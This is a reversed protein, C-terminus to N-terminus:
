NNVERYHLSYWLAELRTKVEKDQLADKVVGQIWRIKEKSTTESVAIGINIRPQFRHIIKFQTSAGEQGVGATAHGGEVLAAMESGTKQPVVVSNPVKLSSAYTYGTSGETGVVAISPNHSNKLDDLTNIPSTKKVFLVLTISGIDLLHKANSPMLKFTDDGSVLISLRDKNDLRSSKLMADAAIAGDAGPAQILVYSTKNFILRSLVISKADGGTYVTLGFAHSATSFALLLFALTLSAFINM